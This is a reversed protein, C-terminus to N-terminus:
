LETVALIVGVPGLEFDRRGDEVRQTQRQGRGDHGTVRRIIRQIDRGDLRHSL